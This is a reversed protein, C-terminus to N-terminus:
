KPNFSLSVYTGVPYTPLHASKVLGGPIRKEEIDDVSTLSSKHQLPDIPIEKAWRGKKEVYWVYVNSTEFLIPLGPWVSNQCNKTLFNPWLEAM